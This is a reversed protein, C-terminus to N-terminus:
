RLAQKRKAKEKVKKDAGANGGFSVAPLRDISAANHSQNVHAYRQVMDLSKWGGLEMLRSLDRNEQYHWTAWTHRLTHPTADEIGARECTLRFATKIQGGGDIKHPYPAKAKGPKRFVAGTRLELNALAAVAIPHLPVGRDEGNKTDLFTVHARGLDVENWDLYVAEAVRAGTYLMFLFLPRMSKTAATMFRDAEVANLWRTKGKPQDPREIPKLECLGRKAAFKLVASLPTHIQRNITSQAAKPKLIKAAREIAAQDINSLKATAFHKVLPGLYRGEGGQMLYGEVAVAFTAIATRGHITENLLETERRIRIEEAAARIDTGTSEDVRRRRVTGRIYYFPSGHRGKFLKLPM